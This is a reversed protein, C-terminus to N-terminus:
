AALRCAARFRGIYQDRMNVLYTPFSLIVKEIKFDLSSETKEILHSIMESVPKVWPDDDRPLSLKTLTYRGIVQQLYHFSMSVLREYPHHFEGGDDPFTPQLSEANGKILYM